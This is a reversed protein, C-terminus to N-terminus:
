APSRRKLILGNGRSQTTVPLFSELRRLISPEDDIKLIGSFRLDRASEEVIVKQDFYRNLSAVVDELPVDEFILRGDQWALVKAPDVKAIRYAIDGERGLYQDGAELRSTTATDGTSSVAVIGRAVTVTVAHNDRLIDFATGVVEVQRDGVAVIFPRATDHAVDFTAEGRELRVARRNGALTVVIATDTNLRIQSGDALAVDKHEGIGTAWTQTQSSQVQPARVFVGVTIAAAVAAAAAMWGVFRRRSAQSRFPLITSQEDRSRMGDALLTKERDITDSMALVADFAERNQPDAELWVSYARWDDETVNGALLVYWAAAADFRQDVLVKPEVESAGTAYLSYVEGQM